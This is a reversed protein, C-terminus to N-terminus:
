NHASPLRKAPNSTTKATCEEWYHCWYCLPTEKPSFNHKEDSLDIINRANSVLKRKIYDIDEISPRVCVEVGYQLFHWKLNINEANFKQEVGILYLGLQLDRKAKNPTIIRKSTKYDHITYENLDKNFELRDIIGRFNIGMFEFNIDLENAITYKFIDSKGSFNKDYFNKLCTIGLQFYQARKKSLRDENKKIKRQHNKNYQPMQALFINDHWRQNWIKNYMYIMEDFNIGDNEQNYIEEIVYHVCSGLFAEINENEKRVKDIYNIHYLETCNKFTNIKSYSFLDSM